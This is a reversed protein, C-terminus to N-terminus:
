VSNKTEDLIGKMVKVFKAPEEYFPFHASQAFEIYKKMTSNLLPFTKKVLDVSTDYDYKGSLFYVPVQILDIADALNFTHMDNDEFLNQSFKYGKLIRKGSGKYVSHSFILNYIPDLNSHQFLSGGFYEVWNNTVEYGEISNYIGQSNPRGIAALQARAESHNNKIASQLAFDYSGIENDAFNIVQGVGIYAYYDEPYQKALLAGLMTGSSHGLLYIRKKHFKKKLYQTLDHADDVFQNLTMSQRPINNSYSRGAGRQDWNVVTFYQELTSAKEHLLPLMAFGPGGHLVLLVPNDDSTGTTYIWQKDGNISVEELQKMASNAHIISSNFFFLLM